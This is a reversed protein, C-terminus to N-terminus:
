VSLLGVVSNRQGLLLNNRKSAESTKLNVRAVNILTACICEIVYLMESGIVVLLSFHPVTKGNGIICNVGVALSIKGKYLLLKLLHWLCRFQGVRLIRLRTIGPVGTVTGTLSQRERM